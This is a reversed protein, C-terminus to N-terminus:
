HGMEPVSGQIFHGVEPVGTGNKPCEPPNRGLNESYTDAPTYGAIQWSKLLIAFSLLGTQWIPV